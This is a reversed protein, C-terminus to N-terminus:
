WWEGPQIQGRPDDKKWPIEDLCKICADVHEPTLANKIIIYGQLDFQYRELDTPQQELTNIKLQLNQIDHNLKRQEKKLRKLDQKIETTDQNTVNWSTPPYM